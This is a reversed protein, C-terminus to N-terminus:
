THTAFYFPSTLARGYLVRSPLPPHRHKHKSALSAPRESLVIFPVQIWCAASTEREAGEGRRATCQVPRVSWTRSQLWEELHHPLPHTPLPDVWSVFDEIDQKARTCAPFADYDCGLGVDGDPFLHSMACTQKGM